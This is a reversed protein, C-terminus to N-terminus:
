MEVTYTMKWGFDLVWAYFGDRSKNIKIPDSVSPLFRDLISSAPTSALTSPLMTFFCPSIMAFFSAFLVPFAAHIVPVVNTTKTSGRRMAMSRSYWRLLSSKGSRLRRPTGKNRRCAMSRSRLQKLALQINSIQRVIQGIM